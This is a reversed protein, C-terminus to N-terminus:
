VELRQNKLKDRIKALTTPNYTIGGKFVTRLLNGPMQDGRILGDKFELGNPGMIVSVRGRQSKKVGNDTKPDKFLLRPKGSVECYTSKMAQGFTDRTVYQYAYSGIGLVANISAFGKAKLRQCIEGARELTISDGYITGIHSDLVKYGQPSLTGGFLAWLAEVVGAKELATKGEPDGCLIKVPDGSDPRIVVRGDRDLIDGRLAPLVRGIVDWLDWTDSVISIFGTPHVETILRKFSAMDGGDEGYACMVSHETAPISTGVLEKEINAGYYYELGQIAPATDTGAFGVALHAMGSTIATELSSLGRFSFDHGQFPVFDANGVTELAYHELIEYYQNAITASTYAPWLMTSLLSEVYNTLWFFRPDTNEITLSPVRVPCLTGEELACIELPLCKLAHLDSIHQTEPNQDGLVHKVFRVYDKLILELSKSFFQEYFYSELKRVAMQVGFVVVHDISPMRTTRATWTSYVYETGQPYQNRHSLKYLDILLTPNPHFM